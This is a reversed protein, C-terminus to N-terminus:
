DAAKDQDIMIWFGAKPQRICGGLWRRTVVRIRPLKSMESITHHAGAEILRHAPTLACYGFVTM